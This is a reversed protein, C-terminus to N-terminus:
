ARNWLEQLADRAKELPLVWLYTGSSFQKAKREIDYELNESKLYKMQTQIAVLEERLRFQRSTIYTINWLIPGYTMQRSLHTLEHLYVGYAEKSPETTIRSEYLSKPFYLHPYVTTAIEDGLLPVYRWWSPIPRIPTRDVHM